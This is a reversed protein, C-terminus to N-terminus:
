NVQLTRVDRVFDFERRGDTRCLREISVAKAIGLLPEESSSLVTVTQCVMFPRPHKKLRFPPSCIRLGELVIQGNSRVCVQVIDLGAVLEAATLILPCFKLKGHVKLLMGEQTDIAKMLDDPCHPFEFM